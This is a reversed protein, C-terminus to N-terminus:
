SYYKTGSVYIDTLYVRPSENLEFVVRFREGPNESDAVVTEIISNVKVRTYGESRYHELIIQENIVIKEPDYPDYQRLTMKEEIETREVLLVGHLKVEALRPREMVSYSLLYSKEGSEDEDLEKVEVQVDEYLKMQYITHIDRRIVKRDLVDGVQSEILFMIQSSELESTGQIEIETIRASLNTTGTAQASTSLPFASSSYGAFFVLTVLFRFVSSLTYM